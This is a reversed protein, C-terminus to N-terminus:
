QGTKTVRVTQGNKVSRAGELVLKAGPKLGDVVEIDDGNTKGTNIITQKIKGKNGETTQITYVYQNGEANESIISQPILIAKENNYDNIKVRATVNPKIINDPNPVAVEIKFTRNSPNIFSGTQRVESSISKNLVPLFVEVKKGETITTIYTEPVDVTIYMNDLNVIRLIPTSGAGVVNGQETIVDDIKGDFPARISSMSLQKDIRNVNAQLSEYSSKANLYQMESGINQEWLRKQREFTTKALDLQIKLQARQQTMGGDDIKALLQGKKVKDGEKVYVQELIGSMEPTIVLNEKTELSGQFEVYHTFDEHKVVFETVLPINRDPSLDKLSNELRKIEATLEQQQTVLKDKEAQITKVDKTALIDDISQEKNGCSSVLFVSILIISIQKM